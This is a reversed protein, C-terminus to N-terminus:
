NAETMGTDSEDSSARVLVMKMDHILLSQGHEVKMASIRNVVNGEFKIIEFM